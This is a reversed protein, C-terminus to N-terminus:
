SLTDELKHEYDSNCNGSIADEVIAALQCYEGGRIDRSSSAVPCIMTIFIITEKIM